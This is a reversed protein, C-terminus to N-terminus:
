PEVWIDTRKLRELFMQQDFKKFTTPVEFAEPPQPAEQIDRLALVTGDDLRFKVPFNLANDVWAIAHDNPSTTEFKTAARKGLIEPQKAECRWQRSDGEIGAVEAMTRWQPCPDAGGASVFLRTLRSSQKADMFVHLRQRVLYAAPVTGDVLLYSNPFEATEIRVKRDAVFIKGPSGIIGGAANSVVLEASFQQARAPSGSCLIAAAACAFVASAALKARMAITENRFDMAALAFYQRRRARQAAAGSRLVHLRL